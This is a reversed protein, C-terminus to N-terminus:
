AKKERNVMWSVGFQDTLMGFREAWFTEALPMGIEAKESLAHFVREAEQVTNVAIDISFGAPDGVRGPPADSTMIVNDGLTIRGHIIKDRMEKATEEAMPSEGYRMMMM